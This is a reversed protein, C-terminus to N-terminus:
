CAEVPAAAGDGNDGFGAIKLGNADTQAAMVGRERQVIQATFGNRFLM